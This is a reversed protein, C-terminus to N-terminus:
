DKYVISYEMIRGVAKSSRVCRGDVHLKVEDKSEVTEIVDAAIKDGNSKHTYKFLYKPSLVSECIKVNIHSNYKLSLYPNYTVCFDNNVKNDFRDIIDLLSDFFRKINVKGDQCGLHMIKKLGIYSNSLKIRKSKKAAEENDEDDIFYDELLDEIQKNIKQKLEKNLFQQFLLRRHHLPNFLPRVGILNQYYILKTLSRQESGKKYTKKEEWGFAGTPFFLPYTAPDKLLSFHSLTELKRTKNCLLVNYVPVEGDESQFIAAKETVEPLNRVRDNKNALPKLVLKYIRIAENENKHKLEQERIYDGFHKYSLALMNIKSIIHTLISIVTIENFANIIKIRIDEAVDSKYFYLQGYFLNDKNNPVVTNIVCKAEGLLVFTPPDPTKFDRQQGTYSAFAFKNNIRRCHKKFYISEEDKGIFLDKIFKPFNNFLREYEKVAGFECCQKYKNEKEFFMAQCHECCTSLIGLYHENQIIEEVRAPFLKQKKLYKKSKQRKETSDKVEQVSELAKAIYDVQCDKNLSVDDCKIINSTLRLLRKKTKSVSVDPNNDLIDEVSINVGDFQFFSNNCVQNAQLYKILNVLTNLMVICSVDNSCYRENQNISHLDFLFIAEEHHIISSAREIAILILFQHKNVLRNLTESLSVFGFNIENRRVKKKYIILLFSHINTVSLYGRGDIPYNTSRLHNVCREYLINGKNLVNNIDFKEWNLPTKICAMILAASSMATCQNNRGLSKQCMDARLIKYFTVSNSNKSVYDNQFVKGRACSKKNEIAKILNSAQSNNRITISYNIRKTNHIYPVIIDENLIIIPKRILLIM